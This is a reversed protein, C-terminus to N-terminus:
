HGRVALNGVGGAFSCSTVSSRINKCFIVFSVFFAAAHYGETKMLESKLRLSCLSCLSNKVSFSPNTATFGSTNVHSKAKEGLVSPCWAASNRTEKTLKQSDNHEKRDKRSFDENEENAETFSIESNECFIVFSVFFLESTDRGPIRAPCDRT